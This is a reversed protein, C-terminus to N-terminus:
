CWKDKILETAEEIENPKLRLALNKKHFCFSILSERIVYYKSSHPVLTDAPTVLFCEFPYPLTKKILAEVEELKAYGNECVVDKKREQSYWKGDKEVIIGSHSYLYFLFIGSEHVAFCLNKYNKLPLVKAQQQELVKKLLQFRDPQKIKKTFAFVQKAGYTKCNKIVETVVGIGVFLLFTGILQLFSSAGMWIGIAQVFLTFIMLYYLIM